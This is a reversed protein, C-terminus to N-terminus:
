REAAAQCPVDVAQQRFLTSGAGDSIRTASRKVDLVAGFLEGFRRPLLEDLPLSIATEEGDARISRHTSSQAITPLRSALFQARAAFRHQSDGDKGLCVFLHRRRVREVWFHEDFGPASSQM